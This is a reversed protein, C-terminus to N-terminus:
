KKILVGVTRNEPTFYKEVVRKLDDSTVKSYYDPADFLRTYDGFFLSYRGLLSAKGNITEMGRYFGMLEQNKIKQLEQDGVGENKIKDLEEYIAKELADATVGKAAIGFFTFLYPDFTAEMSASVSIALQKDFVINKRLRSSNGSSLISSLVDLAYYDPDSAEPVHYSIMINPTSVDKYVMVRKEGNQAPEKTRIEPPPVNAPIPEFYKIALAKVNELKVDGVIIALCNNPAYYTKFYNVLDEKKWGLIDSEYGIVSWKYPHAFFATSLVQMELLSAPSNEISTTYESHIVGRESEVIKDDISLNAIRDAELDFIKELADRPFWDTYITLDQSTSANNSGGAAEMTNDFMKPGYKKAGNFMMHEFFHSLGTTGLNENRSGVKWFLYMNANPISHDELVLVKMGNKLIFSKIDEKKTQASLILSPFLLLIILKKMSTIPNIGQHIM